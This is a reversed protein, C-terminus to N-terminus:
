KKFLRLMRKAVAIVGDALMKVAKRRKSGRPLIKDRVRYYFVMVKYLRSHNIFYLATDMPQGSPESQSTGSLKAWLQEHHRNVRSRYFELESRRHDDAKPLLARVVPRMRGLSFHRQIYRRAHTSIKEWLERNSYLKLIAEALAQPDDGILIDDGDRLGIGEAGIKTTVVPLGHCAAEIIKGKMGAGFRLPAVSIRSKLLYPGLTPVYGLVAINENALRRIQDPLNSGIITAKIEPNERIIWPMIQSCFYKAADLNPPHLFNGVFLIGERQRFGPVKKETEYIIPIIAYKKRALGHKILTNKEDPTVTILVDAQRYIALERQKTQQASLRLIRSRELEAQRQERVFHLDVTDIVSKTHPSYKQLTPLFQEAMHHFSIWAMHYYNKQVLESFSGGAEVGHFGVRLLSKESGIYTEIGMSQLLRSYRNPGAADRAIYTINCGQELFLKLLHFLRLSGAQQDYLPYTPDIVLVNINARFRSARRGIQSSILESLRERNATTVTQGSVSPNPEQLLLTQRWKTYFKRQNEVQCRKIGTNTEKGATIGEYHVVEAEPCYVVKYGRQRISFCLDVDEYYAPMYRSDFGGLSRFLERKVLLCAGSCYDVECRQNYVPKAPDDGRGFNWGSGDSFIIGGAEQLVGNPYVLKAGVAGIHKDSEALSIMATLWGSRTQTDNNLFLLYKGKAQAAGQNCARVFGQNSKNTIVRENGSLAGLFSPTKDTSANDIFIVEYAHPSATRRVAELCRRTYEVKNFVPIIISVQLPAHGPGGKPENKRSAM